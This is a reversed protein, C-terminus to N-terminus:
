AAVQEPRCVKCARYGEETAQRASGFWRTHKEMTRRAHRCSPYCYIKTTDSGSMVRGASADSEMGEVDLGEAELLDKKVSPGFAYNGITGDSKVVRHCPILVAIPNRGLATGVARLAGPKGIERAVWSYPRVEGPPIEATKLLVARQFDSLSDLDVPLSGLKHTELAKSLKAELRDPMAEAAVLRRERRAYEAELWDIDDIPVAVTVGQDNFAVLLPGAPGEVAVYGDAIGSAVLTAPLLAAPADVAMGELAAATQNMQDTMVDTM